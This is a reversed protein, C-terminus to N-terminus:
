FDEKNVINFKLGVEIGKNSMEGNNGRLTYTGNTASLALSSFMRETRKDYVDVNGDVLGNFLSFDLGINAQVSKEWKLNPNEIQILNYGPLNSYGTVTNNLTKYFNAGGFLPNLNDATILLNQNGTTGYSARLKLM